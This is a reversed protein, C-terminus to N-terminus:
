FEVRTLIARCVHPVFTACGLCLVNGSNRRVNPRIMTQAKFDLVKVITGLLRANGLYAFTSIPLDHGDNGAFVRRFNPFDPSKRNLVQPFVHGNRANTTGVLFQGAVQSWGM